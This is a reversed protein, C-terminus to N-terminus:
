SRPTLSPVIMAAKNTPNIALIIPLRSEKRGFSRKPATTSYFFLIIPTISLFLTHRSYGKLYARNKASYWKKSNVHAFIFLTINLCEHM